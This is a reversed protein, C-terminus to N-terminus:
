FEDNTVNLVSLDNYGQNGDADKVWVKAYDSIDNKVLFGSDNALQSNKTPIWTSVEATLDNSIKTIDAKNYYNSLSQHASLYPVDNQLQSAKTPILSTISNSISTAYAKTTYDSLPIASICDNVYKVNAADSEVEPDGVNL